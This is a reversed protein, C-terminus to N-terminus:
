FSLQMSAVVDTAVDNSASDYLNGPFFWAALLGFTVDETYDWALNVDVESGVYQKRQSPLGNDMNYTRKEANWFSLFKADISLSDTPQIGAGVIFQHQNTYSAEPNTGTRILTNLGQASWYYTGAWERIASDFKGRFMPDWGYYSGGTTVISTSDDNGSYFIYELGLVPKWAYQDRFHRFEASVDLAWASRMRDETQGLFGVYTGAQYAGEAAITVNEIPDASGRVGLTHVVNHDKTNIQANAVPWTGDNKSFWYAEMEANYSDFLYGINIGYLDDDDKSAVNGEQIKAYVVDITWPDYDLTARIADFSHVATYEPASLNGHPDQLNAGVIFGKGFFLDQRGIKLTLPSYLFEKLEVYALDIGVDFEDNNQLGLADNQAWTNRALGAMGYNVYSNWDRQNYLRVVAAVNDTLDVDVQLEATTMFNTSWDSNGPASLFQAGSPLVVLAAAQNRQHNADFDYDGRLFSRVALDGSIKVSQTGAYVSTALCLALGLVCLTRVLKM